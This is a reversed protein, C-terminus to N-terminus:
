NVLEIRKLTELENFVNCSGTGVFILKENTAQAKVLFSLMAKSVQNNELTFIFDWRSNKHCAASSVEKTNIDIFVKDGLDKDLMITSINALRGEAAYVSCFNLALLTLSIVKILKM